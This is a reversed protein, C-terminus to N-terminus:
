DDTGGQRAPKAQRGKLYDNLEKDLRQKDSGDRRYELWGSMYGLKTSFNRTLAIVPVKPLTPQPRWHQRPAPACAIKYDTM